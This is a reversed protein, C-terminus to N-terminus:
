LRILSNIANLYCSINEDIEKLNKYLVGNISNLLNVSTLLNESLINTLNVMNDDINNYGYIFIEDIYNGVKTSKYYRNTLGIGDIFSIIEEDKLVRNNSIANYIVNDQSRYLEQVYGKIINVQISKNSLDLYMVTVDEREIRTYDKNDSNKDLILKHLKNLGNNTIDLYVAKLRCINLVERIDEVLKRKMLFVKFKYKLSDVESYKKDQILQMEYNDIDFGQGILEVKVVDKVIDDQVKDIIIERIEVNKPSVTVITNKIKVKNEIIAKKIIKGMNRVDIIENEVFVNNNKVYFMKSVDINGNEYKGVVFNIRMDSIDISLFDKSM